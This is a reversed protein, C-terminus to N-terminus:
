NDRPRKAAPQRCAPCCYGEMREQLEAASFGVCEPHFRCLSPPPSYILCLILLPM